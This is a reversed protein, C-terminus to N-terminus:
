GEISIDGSVTRVRIPNRGRIIDANVTVDGSVTVSSVLDVGDLDEVDLEVDGSVTTISLDDFPNHVTLELDGSTLSMHGTKMRKIDLSFDGSVTNVFLKEVSGELQGDGAKTDMELTGCWSFDGSIDGSLTHFKMQGADLEEIYLDGATTNVEISTFGHPVYVTLQQSDDLMAMFGAYGGHRLTNEDIVLTDGRVQQHISDDCDVVLDGDDNGILQVDRAGVKIVLHHVESSYPRSPEEENASVAKVARRALVSHLSEEIHGSDMSALLGDLDGISDIVKQQAKEESMGKALCENYRDECNQLIEDKLDLRERNEAYNSFIRDIYNKIRDM